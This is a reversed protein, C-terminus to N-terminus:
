NPYKVSVSAGRKTWSLTHEASCARVQEEQGFQAGLQLLHDARIFGDSDEDCVDFVERLSRLLSLLHLPEAGCGGDM